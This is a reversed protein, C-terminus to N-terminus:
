GGAGADGGGGGGGPTANFEFTSPTQDADGSSNVAAVSLTHIGENLKPGVAALSEPQNFDVIYPSTCPLFPEGKQEDSIPGDHIQCVFSGTGAWNFTASTSGVSGSVAATEPPTGAAAVGNTCSADSVVRVNDVFAASDLSEDGQDFISLFLHHTGASSPLTHAATIRQTGADYTTGASNVASVTAPGTANITIPNGLPDKAFNQAGTIDSGETSWDSTDLEAIFADNYIDGVFEPYEESLFRFDFKLCSNTTAPVNLTLDLISVDLDSDGRVNGGGLELGSDEETNPNPALLPDGSTMLGFDTSGSEPFGGLATTSTANPLEGQDGVPATLSGATVPGGTGNMANGLTTGNSTPSVVASAQSAFALAGILALALVASAAHTKM